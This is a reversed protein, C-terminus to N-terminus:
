LLSLLVMFIMSRLLLIVFHLYSIFSPTSFLCIFELQLLYIISCIRKAFIQTKFYKSSWVFEIICVLDHCKTTYKCQCSKLFEKCASSFLHLRDFLLKLKIGCSCSNTSHLYLSIFNMLLFAM